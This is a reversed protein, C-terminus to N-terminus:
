VFWFNFSVRSGGGVCPTVEHVDHGNVDFIVFQNFAPAIELVEGNLGRVRLLGGEEARGQDTLYLHGAFRRGLHKDQHEAIFDGSTMRHIELRVAALNAETVAEAFDLVEAMEADTLPCAESAVGRGPVYPWSPTSEFRFYRQDPSTQEWVEPTVHKGRGRSGDLPLLCQIPRLDPRDASEKALDIARSGPFFDPVTVLRLSSRHFEDRAVPARSLLGLQEKVIDAM